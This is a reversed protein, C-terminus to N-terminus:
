KESNYRQVYEFLKTIRKMNADMDLQEGKGQKDLEIKLNHLMKPIDHLPDKYEHPMVGNAVKLFYINQRALYQESVKEIQKKNFSKVGKNGRRMIEDFPMSPFMRLMGEPFANVLNMGTIRWAIVTQHAYFCMMPCSTLGDLDTEILAEASSEHYVAPAPPINENWQKGDWIQSTFRTINGPYSFDAGVLIAQKYGLRHALVIQAPVVCALMPILSKILSEGLQGQYRYGDKPGLTSYGVKQANDYFPTQPQLKRFFALKGDWCKIVEPNVGPHMVLCSKRDKWGNPVQLEGPHSDPDLCMVYEPERGWYLITPAHSTSCIVDGPWDKIVPLVKNLTPGSGVILACKEKQHPLDNMDTARGEELAQMFNHHNYFSFRVENHLHRDSTRVNFASSALRAVEDIQAKPPLDERLSKAIEKGADSM